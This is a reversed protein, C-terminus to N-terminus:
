RLIHVSCCGHEFAVMPFGPLSESARQLDQYAARVPALIADVNIRQATRLALGLAGAAQLLRTHHEKARETPRMSRLAESAARHLEGAAKLMPHDSNATAGGAAALVLVGAIQAAVQRLDEFAKRTNLIYEATADDVPPNNM